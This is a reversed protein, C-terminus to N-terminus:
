KPLFQELVTENKDARIAKTLQWASDPMDKVFTYCYTSEDGQKWARVTVEAPYSVLSGKWAASAIERGHENSSFGPLKGEAKLASAYEGAEKVLKGKTSRATSNETTCATVVILFLFCVYPAVQKTLRLTKM